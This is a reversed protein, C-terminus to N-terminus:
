ELRVRDGAKISKNSSIIIKDERTLASEVAVNSDNKELIRVSVKVTVTEKGLISSKEELILVFKGESDERIASIPILSRYEKSEKKVNFSVKDNVSFENEELQATLKFQASSSDPYSEKDYNSDTQTIRDISTVKGNVTKRGDSSSVTISDQAKIGKSEEEGVNAAFSTNGSGIKFYEAGTTISGAGVTSETITGDTDSFIKGEDAVLKELKELEKKREAIDIEIGEISLRALKKQKLNDEAAAGSVPEANLQEQEINLELKKIELRCSELREQLSVIDLVALVDGTKIEDGIHAASIVKGDSPMFVLHENTTAINGEGQITYILTGETLNTISVKPITVSDAARSVITCVFMVAFFIFLAKWNKFIGNIKFKKSEIKKNNM